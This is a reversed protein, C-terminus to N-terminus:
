AALGKPAAPACRRRPCASRSATASRGTSPPSTARSTAAWSRRSRSRRASSSTPAATSPGSRRTRATASWRSLFLRAADAGADAPQRSLPGPGRPLGPAHDRVVALGRQGRHRPDHAPIRRHHRQRDGPEGPLLRAPEGAHRGGRLDPQRRCQRGARPQLGERGRVPRRAAQFREHGLRRRHAPRLVPGDARLRGDAPGARRQRRVHRRHAPRLRLALHRLDRTRRAQARQRLVPGGAGRGGGARGRRRAGRALHRRGPRGVAAAGAHRRRRRGRARPLRGRRVEAAARRLLLVPQRVAAGAM